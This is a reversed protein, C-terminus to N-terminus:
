RVGATKVENVILAGLEQADERTWRGKGTWNIIVQPAEPKVVTTGERIATQYSEAARRKLAEDGTDIAKQMLANAGDVMGQYATNFTTKEPKSRELEDYQAQLKAIAQSTPSVGEALLAEIAGKFANQKETITEVTAGWLEAKRDVQEITKTLNGLVTDFPSTKLMDYESKLKQFAQSAPDIGKDLMEEMGSKLAAMKNSALSASDGFAAAKKDLAMTKKFTENAIEADKANGAMM